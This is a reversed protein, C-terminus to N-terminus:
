IKKLIFLQDAVGYCKKEKNLWIYRFSVNAREKLNLFSLKMSIFMMQAKEKVSKVEQKWQIVKGDIQEIRGLLYTPKRM